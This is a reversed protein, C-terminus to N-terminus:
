RQTTASSPSPPLGLAVVRDGADSKVPRAIAMYGVTTIQEIISAHGADLDVDHERLGCAEGRRLGRHLILAFMAYLMIDHAQAYDLFAGAQAPTWVM